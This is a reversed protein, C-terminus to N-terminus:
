YDDSAQLSRSGEVKFEKSPVFKVITREPLEVIEKSQIKRLVKAKRTVSKFTGFRRITIQNGSSVQQMVESKFAEIIESVLGEAHHTKVAIAEILAQKTM